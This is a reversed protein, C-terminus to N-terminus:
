LNKRNIQCERIKDGPCPYASGAAVSFKSGSDADEDEEPTFFEEGLSDSSKRGSDEKIEEAKVPEGADDFTTRVPKCARRSLNMQRSKKVANRSKWTLGANRPSLEITKFNLIFHSRVARRSHGGM